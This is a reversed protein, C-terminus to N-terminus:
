GARSREANARKRISASQWGWVRPRDDSLSRLRPPSSRPWAPANALEPAGFTNANASSLLSVAPRLERSIFLAAGVGFIVLFGILGWLTGGPRSGVVPRPSRQLIAPV